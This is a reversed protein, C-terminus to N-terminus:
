GKFNISFALNDPSKLGVFESKNTNYIILIVPLATRSLTPDEVRRTREFAKVLTTQPKIQEHETTVIMSYNELKLRNGPNNM